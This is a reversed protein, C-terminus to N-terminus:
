RDGDTYITIVARDWHVQFAGIVKNNHQCSIPQWIRFQWFRILYGGYKPTHQTKWFLELFVMPTTYKRFARPSLIDFIIIGTALNLITLLPYPLGWIKPYTAAYIWYLYINEYIYMGLGTGWPCVSVRWSVTMGWTSAHYIWYWCIYEVSMYEGFPQCCIDLVFIYKWLHVNWVRHGFPVCFGELKCDDGLHQCSIDLVLM